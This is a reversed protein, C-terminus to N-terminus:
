IHSFMRKLCLHQVFQLWLNFPSTSKVSNSNKTNKRFIWVSSFHPPTLQLLPCKNLNNQKCNLIHLVLCLYCVARFVVKEQVTLCLLLLMFPTKLWWLLPSKPNEENVDEGGKGPSAQFSEYCCLVHLGWSKQWELHTLQLDRECLGALPHSQRGTSCLGARWVALQSPQATRARLFWSAGSCPSLQSPPPNLGEQSESSFGRTSHLLSLVGQNNSHQPCHGAPVPWPQARVICTCGLGGEGEHVASQSPQTDCVWSWCNTVPIFVAFAKRLSFFM